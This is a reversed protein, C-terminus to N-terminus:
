IFPRPFPIHKPTFLLLFIKESIIQMRTPVCNQVVRYAPPMAFVVTKAISLSFTLITQASLAM